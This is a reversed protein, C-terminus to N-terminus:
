ADGHHADRQNTRVSTALVVACLADLSTSLSATNTELEDRLRAAADGRRQQCAFLLGALSQHFVKHPQEIAAYAPLRDWGAARATQLWQGLGCGDAPVLHHPNIPPGGALMAEAGRLLVLHQEKFRQLEAAVAVRRREPSPRLEGAADRLHDALRALRQSLSLLAAAEAQIHDAVAAAHEPEGSAQEAAHLIEVVVATMERCAAYSALALELASRAQLPSETTRGLAANRRAEEAGEAPLSATPPAPLYRPAREGTVIDIGMMDIDM